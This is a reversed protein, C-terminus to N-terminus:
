GPRDANMRTMWARLAEDPHADILTRLVSSDEDQGLKFTADLATVRAEFGIIARLMPARREELEAATWPRARGAEATRVLEDVASETLSEDIRVQAEIRLAAYNWTPAWRRNGAHEPSVYGQPGTFLFQAEPRAALLACLPNSRAMHGILGTLAGDQAYRGLMPLLGASAAPSSPSLVWALPYDEILRRVDDHGYAAFVPKM